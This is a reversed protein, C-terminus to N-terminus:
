EDGIYHEGGSIGYAATFSIQGPLNDDGAAQSEPVPLAWDVGYLELIARFDQVDHDKIGYAVTGDELETVEIHMLEHWILIEMQEDNMGACNKEYVTIMFDYAKESMWKYKDPIKHCEAYTLRGRATKKKSSGLYAISCLNDRLNILEPYKRICKEGIEAYEPRLIM